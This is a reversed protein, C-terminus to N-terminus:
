GSEGRASMSVIGPGAVEFQYRGAPMKAHKWPSSPSFQDQHPSAFADDEGCPVWVDAETNAPIAIDWAFRDGDVSWNSEILGYSSEYSARASRLGGGIFPKLTFSKYGPESGPSIGALKQYLWSGVAGFAYHNFSNMGVDQFGKEQTWGDWREWITTAGQTVPYLWSPCKTQLLLRFAVDTRGHDSLVHLLYGSGLFGTTLLWGRKGIDDVLAQVAVQEKDKPILGFALALVYSSQTNGVVLGDPSVFRNRFAQVVAAHKAEWKLVDGPRVVAAIKSVVDVSNAYFATGVLDLPTDVGISLWDGFGRFLEGDASARIGGPSNAELFNVFRCLPEYIKELLGRDAYDQYISWPCIALADAWGPGGDDPVVKLSPHPAVPPIRGDAKQSDTLDQLWKAFFPAVNMNFAATGVFAQADGTWGLREDRQPCDTPVDLFNGRQGWVINSQLQNILPHSCEFSGTEELDSCLVVGQIDAQKPAEPVGSIELYRFGHFTFRPEFVEGVPDGKFVYTNTQKASRLNETYLTGDPSLMEGHRLIMTTGQPATLKIRVWGVMNQGFDVIWQPGSESEIKVPETVPQLTKVARIPPRPFGVLKPNLSEGLTAAEWDGGSYETTAWGTLEQNADYSEGMLLDSELLAGKACQWSSDTTTTVLSGDACEVELQALLYPRDGYQERAALGVHGCYWGDGLIAGIANSGAHVLNLVDYTHYYVRKDYETWGPALLDNGIKKGNIWGEFLGLASIYLRAKIPAAPLEFETRLYPCPASDQTTGHWGAGIWRATWATDLFGTELGSYDSWDSWEGSESKARVRWRYATKPALDEGEYEVLVSQASPVEGSDWAVRDGVFVQVHFAIQHAGQQTWPLKWSFRPKAVDIGFAETLHEVRLDTPAAPASM